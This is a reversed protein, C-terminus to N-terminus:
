EDPEEVDKYYICDECDEGGDSRAATQDCPCPDQEWDSWSPRTCLNAMATEEKGADQKGGKCQKGAACVADKMTRGYRGCKGASSEAALRSLAQESWNM